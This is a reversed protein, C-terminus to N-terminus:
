GGENGGRGPGQWGAIARGTSDEFILLDSRLFKVTVAEDVDLQRAERSKIKMLEQGIRVTTIAYKGFPEVTYVTGALTDAEAGEALGLDNPRVGVLVQGAIARSAIERALRDSLAVSGAACHFRLTGGDGILGGRILNIAPDGVLRAVDVNVPRLYIDDPPGVQQIAGNVLVAVEDAVSLAEMADPTFWLTPAAKGLQRRRVEGRLKHRLKADLHSIPEDLLYVTPEQVLTRCLAARQKQGGSLEGPLRHELGQMETLAIVERVRGAIDAEGFKGGKNPARLPFAINDFVSMQPYLANSEFMYAVNRQQPSLKNWGHGGCTIEGGSPAELGSVLRCITTKGAASPGTVGLIRGPEVRLSVNEVANRSGFTRTLRDLELENGSM